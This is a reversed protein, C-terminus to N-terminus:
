SFDQLAIDHLRSVPAGLDRSPARISANHFRRGRGASDHLAASYDPSHTYRGRLGREATGARLMLWPTRRRRGADTASSCATTVSM